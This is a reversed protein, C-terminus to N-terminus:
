AFQILWLLGNLPKSWIQFWGDVHVFGSILNEEPVKAISSFKYRNERALNLAFIVMEFLKKILMIAQM